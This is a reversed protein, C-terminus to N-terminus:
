ARVGTTMSSPPSSTTTKARRTELAAIQASRASRGGVRAMHALVEQRRQSFARRVGMDIGSVEAIGDSVPEWQVGVTRTLETRLAAQYLYGATTGHAYLARGDLTTGHGEAMTENVVVSHTHLQPDGARSLRHRFKAITLGKGEVHRHGGRGRRTWAAEREVYELAQGVAADHADRVLQRVQPDAVAWLVSVSKPASFTLDFALLTRESGAPPTLATFFDDEEVLGVLGRLDAGKGAWVGQAEGGGSYYDDRGSAVSRTYYRPDADKGGVKGISLM